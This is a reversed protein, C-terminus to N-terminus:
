AELLLNIFNLRNDIPNSSYIFKRQLKKEINQLIRFNNIDETISLEKYLDFHNYNTFGYSLCPIKM